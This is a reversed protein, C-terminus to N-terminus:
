DEEKAHVKYQKILEAQTHAPVPEYHSLEISYSGQGGTISKLRTQYDQLESLPQIALVVQVGPSLARTGTIQGRHSSIDGTITGIMADPVTVELNVIPELLVPRAKSIADIFAKRGATVFAIEKSDVPHSKGDYVIVRVDHVPFSALPGSALVERIGKEVAPIFQTPISGGYVDNVFEFGASRPMPEIRLFVEGFQGAGGSQKKHRCHGDAKAMVTERYPIKPPKTIIELNYQKQMRELMARMHLDGLGNIVTEHTTPHREMVFCPDEMELKHLVEFIRQEDGRRKPEVALGYMPQPFDLPVMHIRDEDHSDHLVADFLIDDVKSVAGMEGPLLQKVEQYEKGQLKFLHGVKFPKTTEGIYLQTNPTITGQHVRFVGMKGVFPDM